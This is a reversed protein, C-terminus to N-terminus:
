HVSSGPLSHDMPNCLILCLQAAESVESLTPVTEVMWGSKSQFATNHKINSLESLYHPHNKDYKYIVYEPKQFFFFSDPSHCYTVMVCDFLDCYRCWAPHPRKVLTSSCPQPNPLNM